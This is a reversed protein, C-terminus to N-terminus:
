MKVFILEGSADFNAIGMQAADVTMIDNEVSVDIMTQQDNADTYTMVEGDFAFTGTDSDEEAPCPVDLGSGGVNIELYAASNKAVVSLDENFTFDIIFCEKNSLHDLIQKGFKAEDSAVQDDIKLETAHWTGILDASKDADKQEESENEIDELTRQEEALKAALDEAIQDTSCSTYAVVAFLLMILRYKMIYTQTQNL